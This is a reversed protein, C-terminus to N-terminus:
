WKELEDLFILLNLIAGVEFRGVPNGCDFLNKLREFMKAHIQVLASSTRREDPRLSQM